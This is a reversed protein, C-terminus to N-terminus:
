SSTAFLHYRIWIIQIKSYENTMCAACFSLVVHGWMTAGSVRVYWWGCSIAHVVFNIYRSVSANVCLCVRSADPRYLAVTRKDLPRSYRRCNWIDIISNYCNEGDSKKENPYIKIFRFPKGFRVQNGYTSHMWTFVTTNCNLFLHTVGNTSFRLCRSELSDRVRM